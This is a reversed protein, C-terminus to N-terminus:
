KISGSTRCTGSRKGVRGEIHILHRLKMAGMQPHLFFYLQWLLNAWTESLCLLPDKPQQGEEAEIVIPWIPHNRGTHHQCSLEWRLFSIALVLSSLFTMLWFTPCSFSSLLLGFKKLHMTQSPSLAFHFSNQRFPCSKIHGPCISLLILSDGARPSTNPNKMSRWNGLLCPCPLFNSKPAQWM